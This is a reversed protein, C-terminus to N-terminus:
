IKNQNLKVDREVERFIQNLTLKELVEKISFSKKLILKQKNKISTKKTAYYGSNNRLYQGSVKKIM